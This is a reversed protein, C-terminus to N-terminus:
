KEKPLKELAKMIEKEEVTQDKFYKEIFKSRRLRLAMPAVQRLDDISTKTRNDAAAM